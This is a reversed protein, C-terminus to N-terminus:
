FQKKKIRIIIQKLRTGLTPPYSIVPHFIIGIRQRMCYNMKKSTKTEPLGCGSIKLQSMQPILTTSLLIFERGKM